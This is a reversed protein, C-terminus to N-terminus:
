KKIGIKNVILKSLKLRKKSLADHVDTEINNKPEDWDPNFNLEHFKKFQDCGVMIKSNSLDPSKYYFIKDLFNERVGRNVLVMCGHEKTLQSFVQRFAEFNDFIGAYHDYIRKQNSVSDDALLFVYDFNLRLEPTIGLPYQMTLIYTIHYHRGDFLLQYVTKDKSWEGKSSLCDDMVIFARTNIEKKGNEKRTKSKKIIYKQRDLLREVTESHFEYYIYSDPVFSYFGNMKDTPAIVIGVPIKNAYYTLIAKVVWSKGSARKAIMIISPHDCLNSLSFEHINIDHNNGNRHRFTIEKTNTM